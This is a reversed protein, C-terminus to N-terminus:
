GRVIISGTQKAVGLLENCRDRLALLNARTVAISVLVGGDFRMLGESRVGVTLAVEDQRKPSPALAFASAKGRAIATVVQRASVEYEDKM